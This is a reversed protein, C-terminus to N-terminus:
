GASIFTDGNAVPGAETRHFGCRWVHSKDLIQCNNEQYLPFKLAFYLQRQAAVIRKM